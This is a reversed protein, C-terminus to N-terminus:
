LFYFQNARGGFPSNGKALFGFNGFNRNEATHIPNEGMNSMSYDLFGDNNYDGVAIGMGYSNTNIAAAQSVDTFSIDPYNNRYLVHSQGKKGFDNAVLIDLDNDNDFDTFTCALTCGTNNVGMAEGVETLQPLGNADNGQNLYLLNAYGTNQFGEEATWHAQEIYNGLYLDLRGDLNYDGFSAAMTFTNQTLGIQEGVETFTGNGQNLFFLNRSGALNRRRSHLSSADEWTSVFLDTFGDGNLDGTIVGMTRFQETIGLGASLGVEEFTGDGRNHYLHDVGNSGTTAYIDLWGDGDYDFFAAGGGM